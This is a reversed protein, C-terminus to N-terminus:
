PLFETPHVGGALDALVMAGHLTGLSMHAKAIDLVKRVWPSIMKPCVCMQQRKNGWFLSCVQSGDQKNRFPKACHLYAKLSFILMLILNLTVKLHNM